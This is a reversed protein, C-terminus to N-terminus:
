TREGSSTEYRLQSLPIRIEVTWGLSDLQVASEWVADWADDSNTDNYLYEDRQVNAASVFFAYGTRRDLRPDLAVAFWDANGQGDRRVLQRAITRPESDFMRAAIYIADDDYLVRVETGHEASDGEIPRKQVFGGATTAHQWAEDDLRGDLSVKSTRRAAAISPRARPSAAPEAPEAPEQAALPRIQPVLAFVITAALLMRVHM